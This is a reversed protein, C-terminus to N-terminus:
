LANAGKYEQTNKNITKKNHELTCYLNNPQGLITRREINAKWLGTHANFDFGRGSEYVIDPYGKTQFRIKTIRANSPVDLSYSSHKGDNKYSYYQKKGDASIYEIKLTVERAQTGGFGGSKDVQVLFKRTGYNKEVNTQAPVVSATNASQAAQGTNVPKLSTFGAQMVSSFMTLLLMICLM